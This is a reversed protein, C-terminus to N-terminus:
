VIPLPWAFTVAGVGGIAGAALQLFDRREEDEAHPETM